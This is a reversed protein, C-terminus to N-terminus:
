AGLVYGPTRRHLGTHRSFELKLLLPPFWSRKSSARTISATCQSLLAARDLPCPVSSLSPLSPPSFVCLLFEGPNNPCPFILPQSYVLVMYSLLSHHEMSLYSLVGAIDHIDYTLKPVGRERQPGREGRQGADPM